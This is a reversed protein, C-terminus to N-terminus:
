RGHQKTRRKPRVWTRFSPDWGPRKTGKEIWYRVFENRQQQLHASTYGEQRLTDVTEQSPFWDETIAEKIKKSTGKTPSPERSPTRLPHEGGFGQIKLHFQRPERPSESRVVHTFAGLKNLKNLFDNCRDKSWDVLKDYKMLDSMDQASMDFVLSTSNHCIWQYVAGRESRWGGVAKHIDKDYVTFM